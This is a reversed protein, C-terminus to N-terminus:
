RPPVPGLLPAFARRVKEVKPAVVLRCYPQDPHREFYRHHYEEAPWFRDLPRVETAVPRPHRAEVRKLAQEIVPLQARDEYLVISRYQPGVDPGQRNKQTPDHVAFFAELLDELALKEPDFVVRVVEAHGTKGTSVQEYTPNEVDGGAYGPTAELVGRLLRLAAEV